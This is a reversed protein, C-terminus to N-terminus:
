SERACTSQEQSVNLETKGPARGWVLVPCHFVPIRALPKGTKKREELFNMSEKCVMTNFQANEIDDIQM